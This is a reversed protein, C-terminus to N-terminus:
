LKGMTNKSPNTNANYIKDAILRTPQIVTFTYYIMLLTIMIVCLIIIFIYFSSLISYLILAILLIIILCIIIFSINFLYYVQKKIIEIINFYNTFKIKNNELQKKKELFINYLYSNSEQSYTKNDITYQYLRINNFLDNIANTYYNISNILLNYFKAHNITQKEIIVNNVTNFVILSSPTYIIEEDIIYKIIVVGSGGKGAKNVSWIMEVGGGGGGGTNPTGNSVSSGGGGKGGVGQIGGGGGRGGGGGGGGGGYFSSEGTILSEIGDGGNKGNYNPNNYFSEDNIVYSIGVAAAGGGGGGGAGGGLNGSGSMPDFGTNTVIECGGGSKPTNYIIRSNTGSGSGSSGGTCGSADEGKYAIEDINVGKISTNGNNKSKDGIIITYVVDKNFNLKGYGVGGGGGGGGNINAGYFGSDSGNGGGGVILVDCTMNKKVQFTGSNTFYAYFYEDTNNVQYINNNTISIYNDEILNNAVNFREIYNFNKYYLYNTIILFILLIIYFTNKKNKLFLNIIIILLIIIIILIIFYKIYKKISNYRKYEDYYLRISLNLKDQNKIFEDRVTNLLNIKNKYKNKEILYDYNQNLKFNNIKDTLIKILDKINLISNENIDSKKDASLSKNFLNDAAQNNLYIKRIINQIKINYIIINYYMKKYLLFGLINEPKQYLIENIIFIFVSNGSELNLNKKLNNGPTYNDFLNQKYLYEPSNNVTDDIRVFYFDLEPKYEDIFSSYDSSVFTTNYLKSQNKFFYLFTKYYFTFKNSSTDLNSLKTFSPSVSSYATNADIIITLNEIISTFKKIDYNNTKEFNKLELFLTSYFNLFFSVQYYFEKLNQYDIMNQNLYSPQHKGNFNKETFFSKEIYSDFLEKTIIVM